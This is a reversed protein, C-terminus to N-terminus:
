AGDEIARGDKENLHSSEDLGSSLPIALRAIGRTIPIRWRLRRLSSNCATLGSHRVLMKQIGSKM